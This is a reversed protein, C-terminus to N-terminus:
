RGGSPQEDCLSSSGDREPISRRTLQVGLQGLKGFPKTPIRRYDAAIALADSCICEVTKRDIFKGRTILDGLNM